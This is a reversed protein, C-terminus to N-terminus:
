VKEMDFGGNWENYRCRLAVEIHSVNTTDGAVPIQHVDDAGPVFVLLGLFTFPNLRKVKPRIRININKTPRNRTLTNWKLGGVVSKLKGQNSFFQLADYFVNHDFTVGELVQTTTLGPVDPDLLASNAVKEVMKVNNYLPFAQRDTSEQQLELIEGIDLSSLEDNAAQDNFSTFIPMYAFNVAHLKDTELAAKTLSFRVKCMIKNIRSNVFCNPEPAIGFSAHQYHANYSDPAGKGEDYMIIPYITSQNLVGTELGHFWSNAMDHPRPFWETKM